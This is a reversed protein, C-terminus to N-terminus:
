GTLLLPLKFIYAVVNRCWLALTPLKPLDTNGVGFYSGFRSGPQKDPAYYTERGLILVMGTSLGYLATLVGFSVRWNTAAGIYGAIAPGIFPGLLFATGWINIMRPWEAPHYIDHIIPLGIVQPVTGMLGQVSRFATFTSWDNSLTAGLVMLM